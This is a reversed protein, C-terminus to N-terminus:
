QEHLTTAFHSPHLPRPPLRPSTSLLALEVLVISAFFPPQFLEFFYTTIEMGNVCAGIIGRRTGSSHMGDAITESCSSVTVKFRGKSCTVDIKFAECISVNGVNGGSYPKLIDYKLGWDGEGGGACGTVGAAEALSRDGM